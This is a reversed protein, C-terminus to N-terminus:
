NDHHAASSVEEHDAAGRRRFHLKERMLVKFVFGNRGDLRPAITNRYVTCVVELPINEARLRQQLLVIGMFITTAQAMDASFLAPGSWSQEVRPVVAPSEGSSGDRSTSTEHSGRPRAWTSGNPSPPASTSPNGNGGVAMSGERQERFAERSESAVPLSLGEEMPREVLIGYMMDALSYSLDESVVAKSKWERRADLAFDYIPPGSDRRDVQVSVFKLGIHNIM